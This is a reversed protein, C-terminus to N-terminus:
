DINILYYLQVDIIVNDFQKKNNKIYNNYKM